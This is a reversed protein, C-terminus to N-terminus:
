RVDLDVAHRKLDELDVFELASIHTAELVVPAAMNAELAEKWREVCVCWRDGAVLGPFGFAPNPTTLDNGSRRSFELFAETVETCVCHLGVDGQGTDCKGTRFYGTMPATGCVELKGGLVNRAM